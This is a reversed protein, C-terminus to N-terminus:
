DSFFAGLPNSVIDNTQHSRETPTQSHIHLLTRNGTRETLHSQGIGFDVLEFLPIRPENYWELCDITICTVCQRPALICTM